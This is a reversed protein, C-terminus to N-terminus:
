AAPKVRVQWIRIGKSKTGDPFEANLYVFYDGPEKPAKYSMFPLTTPTKTNLVDYTDTDAVTGGGQASFSLKTGYPLPNGNTCLNGTNVAYPNGDSVGINTLIFQGEPAVETITGDRPTSPSGYCLDLGKMSFVVQVEQGIVTGKNGCLSLHACAHGDWKKNGPSRVGDGNTDDYYEGIDYQGNDNHDAYPEGLDDEPNFIDGEDFIGNGNNDIYNEQGSVAAFVKIRGDLPVGGSAGFPISCKSEADVACSNKLTIGGEKTVFRVQLDSRVNNGREDTMSASIETVKTNGGVSYALPNFISLSLNFKGDQPYGTSIVIEQSTTKKGTGDHTAEVQLNGATPGSVVDVTVRGDKDSTGSSQLLKAGGANGISRFSVREGSIPEGTLGKVIFALTATEIGGVGQIAMYLNKSSEPSIIGVGLPALKIKGALSYDVAGWKGTVIVSDEGLCGKLLYQFSVKNASVTPGSVVQSDSNTICPSSLKVTSGDQVPVATGTDDTFTIDVSRADNQALETTGADFKATIKKGSVADTFNATNGLSGSSSSSSTGGSSSSSSSSSRGSSSSSSSPVPTGLLGDGKKGGSGCGVLTLVLASTVIQILLNRKYKSNKNSM